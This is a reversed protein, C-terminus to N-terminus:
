LLQVFHEGNSRDDSFYLQMSGERVHHSTKVAIEDAATGKRLPTKSAHVLYGVGRVELVLGESTNAAPRGRLRAIMPGAYAASRVNGRGRQPGYSRRRSRTASRSRSRTPRM